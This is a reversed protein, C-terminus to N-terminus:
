QDLYDKGILEPSVAIVYGIASSRAIKNMKKIIEGDVKGKKTWIEGLSSGVSDLITENQNPLMSFSVLSRYTKEDEFDALDMAADDRESISATEDNLIDILLDRIRNKDDIYM